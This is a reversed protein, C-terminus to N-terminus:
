STRDLNRLGASVFRITQDTVDAPESGAQIQEYAATLAAQVFAAAREPAVLGMDVLTDTLASRLPAHAERIRQVGEASVGSKLLMMALEHRTDSAAGLQAEVYERLRREPDGASTMSRVITDCWTVVADECVAV